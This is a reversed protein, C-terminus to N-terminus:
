VGSLDAQQLLWAALKDAPDAAEAAEALGGSASATAVATTQLAKLQELEELQQARSFPGAHKRGDLAPVELVTLRAALDPGAAPNHAFRATGDPLLGVIGPGDWAVLRAIASEDAAQAVFTRPSVLRVLPAPSSDGRVVLVIKVAGDLFEALGAPRLDAGDVEVVIPPAVAREASSWLGFPFAKLWRDHDTPRYRGTRAADVVRAAGMARGLDALRASVREYLSAGPELTLAFADDSAHAIDELVALARQLVEHTGQEVSPETTVLSAFRKVDIYRAGVLGLEAAVVALRDEAVARHTDLYVRVEELTAAVASRFRDRPGQLAALAASTRPDSPM